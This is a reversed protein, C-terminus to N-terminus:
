CYGRGGKLLKLEIAISGQAITAGVAQAGAGIAQEFVRSGPLVAASVDAVANATILTPHLETLALELIMGGAHPADVITLQAEPHKKLADIFAVRILSAIEQVDAESAHRIGADPMGDPEWGLYETRVPAIYIYRERQVLATEEVDASWSQDWPSNEENAHLREPSVLFPSSPAPVARLMSCGALCFVCVAGIAQQLRNSMKGEEVKASGM